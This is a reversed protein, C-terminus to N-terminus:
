TTPKWQKENGAFIRDASLHYSHTLIHHFVPNVFETRNMPFGHITRLKDSKQKPQMLRELMPCQLRRVPEPSSLLCTPNPVGKLMAVIFVSRDNHVQGGANAVYEESPLDLGRLDGKVDEGCLRM